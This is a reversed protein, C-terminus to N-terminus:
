LARFDRDKKKKTSFVSRKQKNILFLYRRADKQHKKSSKKLTRNLLLLHTEETKLRLVTAESKLLKNNLSRVRDELSKVKKNAKKLSIHLNEKATCSKENKKVLTNIKQHFAKKDSASIM